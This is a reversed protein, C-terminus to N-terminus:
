VGAKNVRVSLFSDRSTRNILYKNGSYVAVDGLNEEAIMRLKKIGINFYQSAERVTLMYKEKTPIDNQVM